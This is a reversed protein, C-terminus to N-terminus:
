LSFSEKTLSCTNCAQISRPAGHHTPPMRKSHAEFGSSIHTETIEPQHLGKLGNLFKTRSANRFPWPISGSVTDLMVQSKGTFILKATHTASAKRLPSQLNKEHVFTPPMSITISGSNTHVGTHPSQFSAKAMELLLAEILTVVVTFSSAAKM